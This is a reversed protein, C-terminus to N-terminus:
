SAMLELTRSFLSGNILLLFCIGHHHHDDDFVLSGLCGGSRGAKWDRWGYIQGKWDALSLLASFSSLSFVWYCVLFSVVYFRFTEFVFVTLFCVDNEYHM